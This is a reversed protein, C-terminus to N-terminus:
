KGDALVLFLGDYYGCLDQNDIASGNYSTLLNAATVQQLQNDALLTSVTLLSLKAECSIAECTLYM